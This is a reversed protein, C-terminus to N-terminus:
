SLFAKAEERQPSKSEELANQYGKLAEAYQATTADGEIVMKKIFNLSQEFGMKASIMWHRVALDHNRDLYEYCGLNDRSEPHGHIAAHQCHRIGRAVDQEVGEGKFYLRGLKYHADLEGLRAAETWLEIARPIDQQLGYNGSDYASALLETAAPDKAVVRKRIQALIVAESDPTPTPGGNETIFSTLWVGGAEPACFFALCHDVVHDYDAPADEAQGDEARGEERAVRRDEELPVRVEAVASGAPVSWPVVAHVGEFGRCIASEYCTGEHVNEQNINLSDEDGMKASIMWHQVAVEHNGLKYELVALNYRSSPHGQIAAHQWHRVSRTLDQEAGDGHYYRYGLKYHAGLDGLCASETWLEIARPVHQQLGYKGSDYAVALFETARPDKVDVRKQVLALRAADSDPTPTRCFACMKGMGRQYLALICGDCVRKMCCLKFKSHKPAPLAVPLCCLPCTYSEHLEHGSNMLEEETVPPPGATPVGPSTLVADLSHQRLGEKQTRRNKVGAGVDRKSRFTSGFLPTTDGAEARDGNAEALDRASPPNFKFAGADSATDDGEDAPLFSADFSFSPIGDESVSSAAASTDGGDNCPASVNPASGFVFM